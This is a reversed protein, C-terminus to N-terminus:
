IGHTLYLQKDKWRYVKLEERDAETQLKLLEYPIGCSVVYRRLEQVTVFEEEIGAWPDESILSITNLKTLKYDWVPYGDITIIWDLRDPSVSEVIDRFNM